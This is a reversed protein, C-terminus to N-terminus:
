QGIAHLERLAMARIAILAFIGYVLYCQLGEMAQAMTAPSGGLTASALLYQAEKIAVLLYLLGYVERSQRRSFVRAAQVSHVSARAIQRIFQAVVTACLVVGFLTHLNAWSAPAQPLLSDQLVGLIGICAAPVAICAHATGRPCHMQWTKTAV